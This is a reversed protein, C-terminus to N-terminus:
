PVEYPSIGVRSLHPATYEEKTVTLVLKLPPNNVMTMPPPLLVLPSIPSYMSILPPDVDQASVRIDITISTIRSLYLLYHLLTNLFLYSEEHTHSFFLQGM